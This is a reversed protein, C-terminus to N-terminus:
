KEIRRCKSNVMFPSLRWPAQTLLSGLGGEAGGAWTCGQIRDALIQASCTHALGAMGELSQAVASLM